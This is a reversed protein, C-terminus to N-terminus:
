IVGDRGSHTQPRYGPLKASPLALARIVLFARPVPPTRFLAGTPSTPNYLSVSLQDDSTTEPCSQRERLLWIWAVRKYSLWSKWRCCGRRCTLRIGCSIAFGQKRIVPPVNDFINPESVTGLLASGPRRHRWKGFKCQVASVRPLWIETKRTEHGHQWM